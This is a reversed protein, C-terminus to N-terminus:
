VLRIILVEKRKTNRKERSIHLFMRRINRYRLPSYIFMRRINRYRLPSLFEGGKHAISFDAPSKKMGIWRANAGAERNKNEARRAIPVAVPPEKM